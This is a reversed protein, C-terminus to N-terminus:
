VSPASSISETRSTTLFSASFQSQRCPGNRKRKFKTGSQEPRKKKKKRMDNKDPRQSLPHFSVDSKPKHSHIHKNWTWQMRDLQKISNIIRRKEKTKQEVLCHSIYNKLNRPLWVLGLLGKTKQNQKRVRIRRQTIPFCSYLVLCCLKLHEMKQRKNNGSPFELM